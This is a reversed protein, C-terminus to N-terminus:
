RSHIPIRRRRRVILIFSVRATQRPELNIVSFM